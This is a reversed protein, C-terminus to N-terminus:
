APVERLPRTMARRLLPVLVLYLLPAILLSAAGWVIVARWTTDWLTAVAHGIGSEFLARIDAPTLGLRPARFLWEGARYFPLLLAFQLPYVIWNLAQMAVLNLRLPLAIITCLMTTVGLVPIVGILGGVILSIAIREPTIGERLLALIPASIKRFLSM